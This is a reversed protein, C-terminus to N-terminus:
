PGWKEAISRWDARLRTLESTLLPALVLWLVVGSVLRDIGAVVARHCGWRRPQVKRARKKFLYAGVADVNDGDGQMDAMSGEGRHPATVDAVM